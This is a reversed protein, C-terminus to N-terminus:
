MLVIEDQNLWVIDEVRSVNVDLEFEDDVFKLVEYKGM